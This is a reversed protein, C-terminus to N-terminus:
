SCRLFSQGQALQYTYPRRAAEGMSHGSSRLGFRWQGTPDYRIEYMGRAVSYEYAFRDSLSSAYIGSRADSHLTLAIQFFEFGGATEGQARSPRRCSRPFVIHFGLSESKYCHVEQDSCNELPHADNGISVAPASLDLRISGSPSIYDAVQTPQSHDPSRQFQVASCGSYLVFLAVITTIRRM